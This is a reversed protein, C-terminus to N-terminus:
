AAPRPNSERRACEGLRCRAVRKPGAPPRADTGAETGAWTYRRRSQRRGDPQIDISRIYTSMSRLVHNIHGLRSDSGGPLPLSQFIPKPDLVIRSRVRFPSTQHLHPQENAVLVPHEARQVAAPRVPARVTPVVQVPQHPHLRLTAPAGARARVGHEAQPGAGTSGLSTSPSRPLAGDRCARSRGPAPRYPRTDTPAAM